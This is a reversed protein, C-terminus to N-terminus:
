LDELRFAEPYFDSHTQYHALLANVFSAARAPLGYRWYRQVQQWVALQFPRRDYEPANLSDISVAFRQGAAQSFLWELAQPKVEVSEFAQQQEASRGDPSYWYGYDLQQRRAAGALCWHAIEHLASAIYDHTYIIQSNRGSAAPVYLPEDAGGVLEVAYDSSFCRRFLM